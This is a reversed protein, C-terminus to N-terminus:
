LDHNIPNFLWAAAYDPRIVVRTPKRTAERAKLKFRKNFEEPTYALPKPADPANGTMYFVTFQGTTRQYKHIYIKKFFRMETIYKCVSKVSMNVADAMNHRSMPETRMKNLLFEIKEKKRLEKTMYVREKAAKAPNSGAVLHNVTM